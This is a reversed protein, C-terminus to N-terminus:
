GATSCAGYLGFMPIDFGEVGQSTATGQRLLDGGFLYRIESAKRGAKQLTLSCALKQMASEAAEWTNEGFLDDGSVHDFLRGLPGEGEKKGTVSAACSLFPANVFSLSQAGTQVKTQAGTQVAERVKGKIREDGMMECGGLDM